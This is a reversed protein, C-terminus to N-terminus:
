RIITFIPRSGLLIKRPIFWLNKYGKKRLEGIAKLLKKGDNMWDYNCITVHLGGRFSNPKDTIGKYWVRERRGKERGTLTLKFGQKELVRWVNRAEPISGVYISLYEGSLLLGTPRSEDLRLGTDQGLIWLYSFARSSDLILPYGAKRSHRLLLM